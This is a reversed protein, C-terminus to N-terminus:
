STAGGLAARVSNWLATIANIVEQVIAAPTQGQSLRLVVFAVAALVLALFILRRLREFWGIGSPPPFVYQSVKEQEEGAEKARVKVTYKLREIERAGRLPTLRIRVKRAQDRPVLVEQVSPRALLRDSPSVDISFTEAYTGDNQITLEAPRRFFRRHLVPDPKLSITYRISREVNVRVVQAVDPVSTDDAVVGLFLDYTGAEVMPANVVIDFSHSEGPALTRPAPLTLWSRNIGGPVDRVELRYNTTVSAFEPKIAVRLYQPRGVRVQVVEPTVLMQIRPKRYREQVKNLLNAFQ